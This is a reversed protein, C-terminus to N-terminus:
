KICNKSKISINKLLQYQLILYSDISDLSRVTCLKNLGNAGNEVLFISTKMLPWGYWTSFLKDIKWAAM